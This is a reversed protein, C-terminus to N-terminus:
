AEELMRRYLEALPRTAPRPSHRALFAARGAAGRERREGEDLLLRRAAAALEDPSSAVVVGDCPELGEAGRRTTVVPVGSAMAELVKVKAGSGRWLPYLLVSLSRAFAAASEVEGAFVVSPDGGALSRFPDTDHGAIALTAEPVDRRVLPWVRSVLTRIANETPPWSGTGILGARPPGDLSAPAYYRPDLPLPVTTVHARPSVARLSEAVDDSSAVLHRHRTIARREAAAWELVFRFENRWPRGLGRDLRIRFHLHVVSPRDVGEDCWATSTEELHLVDAHRALERVRDSFGGRLEGRPRRIRSPYSRLGSPADGVEVIEVPLDGPPDDPGAFFQRAAIASVEVGNEALGRLLAVASRGPANGEPLPPQALVVLVKM